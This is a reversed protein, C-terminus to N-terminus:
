DTAATGTTLGPLEGLADISEGRWSEQESYKEAPRGPTTILITRMGVRQAGTLEGQAGDGVYMCDSPDVRLRECARLYIAPDPKTLREVCSFLPEDIAEAYPTTSWLLPIEPICNSILATQLGLARVQALAALADPRPRLIRRTCQVRIRSAEEVAAADPQAGLAACVGRVCAQITPFTGDYRERWAKSWAQSFADPDVGVARAMEIRCARFAADDVPPTLTNFLDFVVAAVPASGSPDHRQNTM